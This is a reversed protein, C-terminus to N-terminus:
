AVLEVTRISAPGRGLPEVDLDNIRVKPRPAIPHPEPTVLMPDIEVSDQELAFAVGERSLELLEGLSAAGASWGEVDPSEAWWVFRPPGGETVVDLHILVKVKSV